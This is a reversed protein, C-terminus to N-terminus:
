LKFWNLDTRIPEYDNEGNVYTKYEDSTIPTKVGDADITYVDNDKNIVQLVTNRTTGDLYYYEIRNNTAGSSGRMKIVQNECINYHARHGMSNTDFIRQPNGNVLKYTDVINYRGSIPDSIILEPISDGSLDELLYCIQVDRNKTMWSFESSVFPMMIKDYSDTENLVKYQELIASYSALYDQYFPKEKDITGEPATEGAPVIVIKIGELRYGYAATGAAEGNKAWGLWGMNQAHVQYYIDFKDADAGILKIQIAELRYSLGETGSMQNATKWGLIADEEWGINQIHTQYQIGLNNGAADLSIRIGELRYSFGETGSMEGEEVYDQWGVNQVHTQYSCIPLAQTQVNDNNGNEAFITDPLFGTMVVMLIFVVFRRFVKKKM